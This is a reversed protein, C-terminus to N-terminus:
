WVSPTPNPGLARVSMGINESNHTYQCHLVEQATSQLARLALSQWVHIVTTPKVNMVTLGRLIEKM